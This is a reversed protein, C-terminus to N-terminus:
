DTFTLLPKELCEKLDMGERYVSVSHLGPPPKASLELLLSQLSEEEAPAAEPAKGEVAADVLVLSFLFPSPPQPLPLSLRDPSTVHYLFGADAARRWAEGPLLGPPSVSFELSALWRLAIGLSPVVVLDLAAGEAAALALPHGRRLAYVAISAAVRAALDLYARSKEKAAAATNDISLLLSDGGEEEMERVSLRGLRATTKWHVHRLPDGPQYERVGYFDPGAGKSAPKERSSPARLSTSLLPLDAPEVYSPYVVIDSRIDVRASHRALGLLGESYIYAPWLDYVGRPLGPHHYGATVRGRPPMYPLFVPFPGQAGDVTEEVSPLRRERLARPHARLTPRRPKLRPKKPHPSNDPTEDVALLLYKARRSRNEVLIDVHFPRKEEADPPLARQLSLNRVQFLSLGWSALLAALLLSALWFLWGAQSNIGILVLALSLGIVV